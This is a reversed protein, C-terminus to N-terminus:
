CSSPEERRSFESIPHRMGYNASDMIIQRGQRTDLHLAIPCRLNVTSKSVPTKFSCLVGFSLEQWRTVGLQHLETPTLEPEYDSVLTFPDMLIFSLAPTTASQLSYMSGGSEEFPILLFAHEEEFGPLGASFHFLKSEDCDIDGFYKTQYIM